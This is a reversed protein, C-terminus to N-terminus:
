EWKQKKIKKELISKVKREEWEEGFIRFSAFIDTASIVFVVTWLGMVFLNIHKLPFFNFPVVFYEKLIFFIVGVIYVFIHSYFAKLKVVKKSAMKQLEFEEQEKNFDNEMVIEM